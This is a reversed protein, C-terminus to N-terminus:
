FNDYYNYDKVFKGNEITLISSIPLSLHFGDESDGTSVFEVVIVNKGSPYIHMVEDKINPFMQNLESYKKVIQDQTQTVPENGFSPDKFLANKAYMKSMAEWDHNNFHMFLQEAMQKNKEQIKDLSNTCSFMTIALIFVGIKILTKM